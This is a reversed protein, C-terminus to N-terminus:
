ITLLRSNMARAAIDPLQAAVKRFLRSTYTLGESGCGYLRAYAVATARSPSLCTGGYRFNFGSDHSHTQGTPNEAVRACASIESLWEPPFGLEACLKVLIGAARRIGLEEIVDRVGLGSEVISEYFLTSTGHFLPITLRGNRIM